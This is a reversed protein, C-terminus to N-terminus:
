VGTSGFGGLGRTTEDLYEVIQWSARAVPAIVLQAIRDGPNIKYPQDGTNQLVVQIENRFDVDITGPSNTITLGYKIALGSRPRVQAEFGEPLAIRIGTPVLVRDGPRLVIPDPIFAKLDMGVAGDTEYRPIFNSDAGPELTIDIVPNSLRRPFESGSYM